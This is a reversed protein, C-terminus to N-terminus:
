NCSFCSLFFLIFTKIKNPKILIMEDTIDVIPYKAKWHEPSGLFTDIAILIVKPNIEKAKDYMSLSSEFEEISKLSIGKNVYYDFDQTRLEIKGSRAIDDKQYIITDGKEYVEKTEPGQLANEKLTKDLKKLFDGFANNFAKYLKHSIVM